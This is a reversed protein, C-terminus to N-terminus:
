CLISFDHHFSVDKGTGSRLSFIKLIESNSVINATIKKYINKILNLFDGEIGLRKLTKVLFSHLTKDVAKEVNILIIM